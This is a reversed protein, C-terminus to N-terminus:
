EKWDKIILKTGSMKVVVKQHEKWGLKEVLEIPLTVSYSHKAIKTIKRINKNKLKDAM